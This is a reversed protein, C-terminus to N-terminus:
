QPLTALVKGRARWTAAGLGMAGAEDPMGILLLAEAEEPQLGTLQTRYGDILQFGGGPGCDGYIPIGAMSLADIDRYITRVSVEFEDALAQATLRGRVQLSILISLLRSARM